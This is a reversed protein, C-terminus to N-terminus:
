EWAGMRAFEGAAGFEFKTFFGLYGDIKEHDHFFETGRGVQITTGDREYPVGWSDLLACLKEM